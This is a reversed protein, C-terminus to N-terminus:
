RALDERRALLLPKSSPALMEINPELQIHSGDPADPAALELCWRALDRLGAPNGVIEVGDMGSRVIIDGDGNTGATVGRDERYAPIEITLTPVCRIM